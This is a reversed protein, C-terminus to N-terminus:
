RPCPLQVPYGICFLYSWAALIHKCTCYPFSLVVPVAYGYCSLWYLVALVPCGSCSLSSMVALAQCSPCGSYLLFSLWFMVPIVAFSSVPCSPYLLRFLVTPVPCGLCSLYYLVIQCSLRLMFALVPCMYYLVVLCCLWSLVSLIPCFM